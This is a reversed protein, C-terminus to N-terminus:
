ESLAGVRWEAEPAYPGCKPPLLKGTGYVDRPAVEVTLASDIQDIRERGGTLLVNISYLGPM